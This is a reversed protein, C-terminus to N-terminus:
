LLGIFRHTQPIVRVDSIIASAIEQLELLGVSSINLSNDRATEPQLIFPIDASVGAIIEAARQIEWHETSSNVVAKVSVETEAAKELFDRHHGWLGEEGSSSPLKIDMSVHDIDEIVRSLALHLVGNTELHVPLFQRLRPLWRSLLDVHLLPEGGTLSISHHVHPWGGGWRDLLEIVKAMPVLNPVEQFDQRGPTLEMRCSVADADSETDCYECSLNCGRFRIFVQRHGILVGEGQISSFIEILDASDSNM